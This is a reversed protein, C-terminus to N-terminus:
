DGKVGQSLPPAIECSVAPSALQGAGAPGGPFGIGVGNPSMSVESNDFHGRNVASLSIAKGFSGTAPQRDTRDAHAAL